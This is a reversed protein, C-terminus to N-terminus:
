AEAGETATTETEPRGPAVPAPEAPLAPAVPAAPAAQTQPAPRRAARKERAKRRKEVQRMREDTRVTLFKIVDDTVRLRRELERIVASHECDFVVLVYFGETRKGLAYALKRIGWKEVKGVVGSHAVIVQKVQEITADVVEETADPRVIYLEEYSRM